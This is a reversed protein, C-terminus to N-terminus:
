RRFRSILAAGGVMGFVIGFIAALPLLVDGRLGFVGVVAFALYLPLLLLIQLVGGVDRAPPATNWSGSGVTPLWGQLAALLGVFMWLLGLGAGLALLMIEGSDLHWFPEDM